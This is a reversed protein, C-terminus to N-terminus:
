ESFKISYTGDPNKTVVCRSETLGSLREDSSRLVAFDSDSLFGRLLEMKVELDGMDGKEDFYDDMLRKLENKAETEICHGVLHLNIGEAMNEEEGAIQRPCSGPHNRGTHVVFGRM